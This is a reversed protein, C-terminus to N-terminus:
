LLSLNTSGISCTMDDERRRSCERCFTNHQKGKNSNWHNYLRTTRWGTSRGLCITRIHGSIGRFGFLTNNTIEQEEPVIVPKRESQLVCVTADCTILESTLLFKSTVKTFHREAAPDNRVFSYTTSKNSPETKNLIKTRNFM